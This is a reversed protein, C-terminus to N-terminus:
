RNRARIRKAIWEVLRAKGNLKAIQFPTRGDDDRASLDAGNEALLSLTTPGTNRQAAFQAAPQGGHARANVDAGHAILWAVTRHHAASLRRRHSRRGPYIVIAAGYIVIPTSM